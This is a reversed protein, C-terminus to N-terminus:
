VWLGIFSQVLCLLEEMNGKFLLGLTHGRPVAGHEGSRGLRHGGGVPNAIVSVGWSRYPTAAVGGAIAGVSWPGLAGLRPQLSPAVKRRATGRHPVPDAIVRVDVVGNLSPVM